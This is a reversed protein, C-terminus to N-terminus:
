EVENEAEEIAKPKANYKNMAFTAGHRVIDELADAAAIIGAVAADEESKAFRSLVYNSQTFGEPRRGIGIRIRLFEDTELQYLINKMGNHGGASGRQRIRIQGPNLDSDDYIVILRELFDEPPMKYFRAFKKVALGSLNMFTTPKALLLKQGAFFGEGGYAEFKTAKIKIGHRKALLDVVEFGINHRTGAYQRGPNGLGFILFM